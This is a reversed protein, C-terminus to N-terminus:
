APAKAWAAAVSPLDRAWNLTRIALMQQRGRIAIEYRFRRSTSEPAPSFTRRSSLSAPMNKSADKWGAQRTSPM